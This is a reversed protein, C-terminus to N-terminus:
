GLQLHHRRADDDLIKILPHELPWLLLFGSCVDLGTNASITSHQRFSAVKNTDTPQQFDALVYAQWDSMIVALM